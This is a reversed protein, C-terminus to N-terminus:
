DQDGEREKAYDTLYDPHGREELGVVFNHVLAKNLNPLEAFKKLIELDGRLYAITAHIYNQWDEDEAGIAESDRLASQLDDEINTEGNSIRIQARHFYTLSRLNYFKKRDEPGTCVELINPNSLVEVADLSSKREPDSQDLQFIGELFTDPTVKKALLAKVMHALQIKPSNLKEPSREM